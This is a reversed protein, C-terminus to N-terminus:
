AAARLISRQPRAATLESLEAAVEAVTMIRTTGLASFEAAQDILREVASWGRASTAALKKMDINAVATSEISTLDSGKRGLVPLWRSAPATVHPGFEWVGFPLPRVISSKGPRPAAIVARVGSQCLRREIHGRSISRNVQVAVVEQGAREFKDLGRDIAEAVNAAGSVMLAVEANVTRRSDLQLSAAQAPEEVAWTSSVKAQALRQALQGACTGPVSEPWSVVLSVSPVARHASPMNPERFPMLSAQEALV